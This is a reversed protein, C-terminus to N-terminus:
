FHKKKDRHQLNDDVSEISRDYRYRRYEPSLKYKITRPKNDTHSIQLYGLLRLTELVLYLKEFEEDSSNWFGAIEVESIGADSSHEELIKLIEKQNSGLMEKQSFDPSCLLKKCEKAANILMSQTSVISTDSSESTPFNEMPLSSSVYEKWEDNSIDRWVKQQVMAALSDAKAIWVRIKGDNSGSALFQGDPSFAVSSVVNESKPEAQTSVTLLIPLVTPNASAESLNWLWIGEPQSSNQTEPWRGIALMNGDPSYAISSGKFNHGGLIIPDNIEISAAGEDKILGWLRLTKDESVSALQYEVKNNTQAETDKQGKPSFNVSFVESQEHGGKLDIVPNSQALDSPCIARKPKQKGDVKGLVSLIQNIDWLRITKQNSKGDTWSGSVLYKSDPSFALTRVESEFFGEFKSFLELSTLDWLILTKDWSGSALWKGDRSFAIARVEGDHGPLFTPIVQLQNLYEESQDIRDQFERLYWLRVKNDKDYGGSALIRGDSSFALPSNGYRADPLIM